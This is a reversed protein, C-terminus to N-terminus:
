GNCAIEGTPTVAGNCITTATGGSCQCSTAGARCIGACTYGGMGNPSCGPTGAPYCATPPVDDVIGNCNDDICNCSEPQPGIAGECTSLGNKCKLLGPRCAGVNSGCQALCGCPPPLPGASPCSSAVGGAFCRCNAGYPPTSMPCPYLDGWEDILTDRDDDQANCVEPSSTPCPGQDDVIGNCDDDVGNPPCTEVGPPGPTLPNGTAPDVCQSGTGSPLCALAGPRQSLGIGVTCTQAPHPNSCAPNTVAVEPFTEDCEGNCNDDIGNCREQLLSSSIIQSLALSLSQEDTAYFATCAGPADTGGATAIDELPTYCPTQGFGIVYTKIDYTQSGVTTTRLATAAAPPTGGCTEDGDTLLIVYHPRCSAFSDGIIPSQASQYYAQAADLSGALPTDGIASLEPDATNRCDVPNPTNNVWVVLSTANGDSIGVLVQGLAATTGCTPGGTSDVGRWTGDSQRCNQAFRELGFIADGTSDVIRRFSCKADNIRTRTYGCSNNGSGTSSTMSGSTDVIMMFEPKIQVPQAAASATLV